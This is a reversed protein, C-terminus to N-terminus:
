RRVKLKKELIFSFNNIFIFMIVYLVSAFFFGTFDLYNNYVMNGVRTLEIIMIMSLLSTDKIVMSIQGTITPIANRFAQPFIIKQLIQLRTLGLSEAAEWDNKSIGNIEGRIIETVFAGENLTIAIVGTMFPTMMIGVFPLGYYFFFLQVLLPSNRFISVYPQLFYTLARNGLSMAVSVVSGLCIAFISSILSIKITITLAELFIPFWESLLRFSFNM